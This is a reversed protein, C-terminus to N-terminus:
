RVLVAGEAGVTSGSVTVIARGDAAEGRCSASVLALALTLVLRCVPLM